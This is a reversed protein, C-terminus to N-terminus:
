YLLRMKGKTEIGGFADRGAEIYKLINDFNVIKDFSTSAVKIAAVAPDYTHTNIRKPSSAYNAGSAILAEFHSECAGAIIVVDDFSFLKRIERITKIFYKTNEYSDINNIDGGHYADHGTIVVIDPTINLIIDKISKYVDKEPLYVAEAYIGMEKYLSLCSELYDKDGDIHLIKPPLYFFDNKEDNREMNDIDIDLELSDIFEDERDQDNSLVLDSLPSDAVLRLNVGKLIAINDKIDTIIFVIDNRYSNRTVYDGIKFM